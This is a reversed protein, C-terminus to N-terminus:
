RCDDPVRYLWNAGCGPEGWPSGPHPRDTGECLVPETTGALGGPSKFVEAVIEVEMDCSCRPCPGSLTVSGGGDHWTRTFTRAATEAYGPESIEQYPLCDNQRRMQM